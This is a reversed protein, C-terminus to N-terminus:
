KEKIEKLKHTGFTYIASFTASIPGTGRGPTFWAPYLPDSWKRHINFAYRFSWGMSFGRYIKVKLGAVAQGYFETSTLGAVETPGKEGQYYESGAQIRDISYSFHTVGARLGLYVQYDPNSKYLFNYNMGIKGYFAPSSKYHFRGDDPNADAFGIGLEVVPFFWNHISCDAQLDFSARRQGALMMIADFFNFGISAGNFTPYNPGSRVNVVTDLEALFRVPTELPNGHKDYYHLYPQEPKDRDIDVPTTSPRLPESPKPAVEVKIDLISDPIEQAYVRQCFAPLILWTILLLRTFLRTPAPNNRQDKRILSLTRGPLGPLRYIFNPLSQM